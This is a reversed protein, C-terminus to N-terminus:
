VKTPDPNAPDPNASANLQSDLLSYLKAKVADYLAPEFEVGKMDIRDFKKAQFNGLEDVHGIAYHITVLGGEPTVSFQEIKVSDLVITEVNNLTLPM